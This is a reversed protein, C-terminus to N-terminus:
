KEVAAKKARKGKRLVAWDVHPCLLECQVGTLREITPAVAAPTGNILWQYFNATIVPKSREPMVASMRRALEAQGNSKAIALLLAERPNM